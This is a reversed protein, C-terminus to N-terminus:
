KIGKQPLRYQDKQASEKGRRPPSNSGERRSGGWPLRKALAGKKKEPHLIEERGWKRGREGLHISDENCLSVKGWMRRTRSSGKKAKV